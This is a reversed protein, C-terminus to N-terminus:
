HPYIIYIHHSKGHFDSLYEDWVEQQQPPQADPLHPDNELTAILDNCAVLFDLLKVGADTILLNQRDPGPFTEAVFKKFEEFVVKFKDLSQKDYGWRFILVTEDHFVQYIEELIIDLGALYVSTNAEAM